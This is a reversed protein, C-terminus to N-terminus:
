AITSLNSTVQIDTGSTPTYENWEAILEGKEGPVTLPFPAAATGNHAKDLRAVELHTDDPVATILQAEQDNATDTVSDIVVRSGPQFGESSAVPIVVPGDSPGVRDACSTFLADELRVASRGPNAPPIGPYNRDDYAAIEQAITFNPSPTGPQSPDDITGNEVFNVWRTEWGKRVTLVVRASGARLFAQRNADPHKLRRIFPWSDPLDWFYSYLFTVVNEWEIAENVFRVIDEYQTVLTWLQTGPQIDQTDFAAGHGTDVKDAAFKATVPAPVTPFSGGLLYRLVCKMIEDNEERRLTLTDVNDLEDELAAIRGAIDQQQAYYDTQAASYLANWVDSRWQAMADATPVCVVTFELSETSVDDFTMLIPQTGTAGALFNTGGPALLLEDTFTKDAWPDFPVTSGEVTFQGLHGTTSTMRGTLTVSQIEYGPDLTVTVKASARVGQPVPQDLTPRLTKVKAPPQPVQANYRDALVQFHPEKPTPPHTVPPEPDEDRVEDTIDDHPVPFVFPGLQDKLAQLDIYAKRMSASPEPLVLDYTLRLGYRYLRVRWRRMMSFYDIRMADTPSPNKLTRTTTQSSGTVSTTTITVKHEQKARTSAKQTLTTAHKRSDTASQSDAGQGTFGSTVSGSIIPIGGSVTGTINFQNSHQQQSTTSQSLETNDTVGTESYNELSDTVISSFEKSQVSWEKQTVATEELPALPITAILEGREIGNPAMELRELNMWGLRPAAANADLTRLALVATHLSQQASGLATDSPEPAAAAEALRRGRLDVVAQGFTRLTEVPVAAFEAPAPLVSALPQGEFAALLAPVTAGPEWTAADAAPDASRDLHAHVAAVEGPQLALRRVFGAKAIASGTSSPPASLPVLTAKDIQRTAHDLLPPASPPPFPFPADQPSRQAPTAPTSVVDTM